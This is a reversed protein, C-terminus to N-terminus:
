RSAFGHGHFGAHMEALIELDGDIYKRLEVEVDQTITKYVKFEAAEFVDGANKGCRPTMLAEVEEDLLIQAAQVGAGGSAEKAANEIFNRDGSEIDVILFLPARAFSVCITEKDENVPIAVKMGKM